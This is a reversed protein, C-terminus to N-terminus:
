APRFGFSYFRFSPKYKNRTTSRSYRLESGWSGGRIVLRTDSAPAGYPGYLTKTWECVNGITDFLGWPNPRFRGVPATHAYM